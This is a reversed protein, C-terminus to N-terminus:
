KEFHQYDKVNKWAGGWTYGAAIFLQYALDNEDIKHDFVQVRDMYPISSTPAVVTEGSDNVRIYPNFRPNLDIAMGMGHKSIRNSGAVTRYNFGSSNNDDMSLNDDGHYQDILLMKEIQYNNEFLEKMIQLMEAAIQQNVVLEGIHPKGDFGIHLVRLYRLNQRTITDNQHYSVENMAAFLEDTICTSYFLKDIQASRLPTLSIISGAPMQKLDNLIFRYRSETHKNKKPTTELQPQKSAKKKEFIIFIVGSTAILFLRLKRKQKM